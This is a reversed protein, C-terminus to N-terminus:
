PSSITLYISFYISLCLARCEPVLLQMFYQPHLCCPPPGPLHSLPYSCKSKLCSSGLEFGCCGCPFAPMTTHEQQVLMPVWPCHTWLLGKNNLRSLIALNWTLSCRDWPLLSSLKHRTRIKGHASGVCEQVHLLCLCVCVVIYFYFSTWVLQAHYTCAKLRLVKLRLVRFASAPLSTHTWLWGLKCLLNCDLWPNYLLVM